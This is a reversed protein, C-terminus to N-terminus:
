GRAFGVKVEHKLEIRDGPQLRSFVILSDPYAM